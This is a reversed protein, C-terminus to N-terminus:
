FTALEKQVLTAAQAGAMVAVNCDVSLVFLHFPHVQTGM